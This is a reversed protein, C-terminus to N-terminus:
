SFDQLEMIYELLKTVWANFVKNKTDPTIYPKISEISRGGEGRDVLLPINSM